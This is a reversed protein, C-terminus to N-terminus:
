LEVNTNQLRNFSDRLQQAMRNFSQALRGLENKGSLEITQELNGGAIAESAQSLKQLPQTIWRSTYWGLITAILLTGICLLITIQTNANIQAMFDSEPVVVVGLWDIGWDDKMPTVQVFQRQGNIDFNIQQSDTINTFSGFKATLQKATAQVIPNEIEIAMFYIVNM